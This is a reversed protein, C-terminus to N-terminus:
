FGFKLGATLSLGGRDTFWSSWKGYDVKNEDKAKGAIYFAAGGFLQINHKINLNINSGLKFLTTSVKIEETGAPVIKTEEIGLGAFPRLEINRTLQLGKAAGIGYRVFNYKHYNYEKAEFGGEIYIFMAPIGVFRGMRLDLRGYIGGIAGLEYGASLEAGYDNRQELLYGTEMRRGATQYFETTPSQGTAVQVNDAIKKTARIVGRLKQVTSNSRRDHVYEYAFFRYDTLVGEKKGIKAVIPKVGYITSIVKFHEIKMELNYLIENYSKQLISQMMEDDTKPKTTGQSKTSESESVTLDIRDVYILPIEIKSLAEKKAAVVQPTDDDYIWNEYIKNRVTDSYDVKYLFAQYSCQWGRMDKIKAEQMTKIDHYDVVIVYSRDILRNGYDELQANGRKTTKAQLIAEDTANFMGRSHVLDLNMKGDIDMSYWKAVIKNSVRQSKLSNGILNAKDFGTYGKEYPAKFNLYGLNNNFYKDSFVIKEINRRVFSFHNVSPYDLVLYTISSRDYTEPVRLKIGSGIVDQAITFGAIYFLFVALFSIKRM